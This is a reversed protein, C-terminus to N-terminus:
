TGGGEANPETAPQTKEPKNAARLAFVFTTTRSESRVDTVTCKILEGKDHISFVVKLHDFEEEKEFSKGDVTLNDDVVSFYKGQADNNAIFEGIDAKIEHCEEFFNYEAKSNSAFTEMLVSFAVIMSTLIGVIALVICIIKKM